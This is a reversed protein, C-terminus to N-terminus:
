SWLYDTRAICIGYTNDCQGSFHWITEGSTIVSKRDVCWDTSDTEFLWDCHQQQKTANCQQNTRTAAEVSFPEIATAALPSHGRQQTESASTVEKSIICPTAAFKAGCKAGDGAGTLSTRLELGWYQHPLPQPKLLRKSRSVGNKPVHYVHFDSDELISIRRKQCRDLSYKEIEIYGPKTTDPIL